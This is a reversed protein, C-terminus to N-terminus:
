KRSGEREGQIRERRNLNENRGESKKGEKTNTEAEKNREEKM